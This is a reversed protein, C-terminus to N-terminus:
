LLHLDIFFSFGEIFLKIREINTTIILKPAYRLKLNNPKWSNLIPSVNNNVPYMETISKITM